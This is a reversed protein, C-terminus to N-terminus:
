RAGEFVSMLDFQYSLQLGISHGDPYYFDPAYSVNWRDQQYAIKLLTNASFRYGLGIEFDHIIAQEAPVHSGGSNAIYPYGYKQYRVAGYIRPTFTYQLELFYETFEANEYSFPIEYRSFVVEGSIELYGRAFEFEIAWLEQNYDRWDGNPPLYVQQNKNLYPGKTWALGFRLGTMPTIGFGLDPRFASSPDAPLYEPYFAPLDVVAARYDFWDSSGAVQVGLPTPHM